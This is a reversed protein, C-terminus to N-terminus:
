VFQNKDCDQRNAREGKRGKQRAGRAAELRGRTRRQRHVLLTLYLKILQSILKMYNRKQSKVKGVEYHCAISNNELLKAAAKNDSGGGGGRGGGHKFM